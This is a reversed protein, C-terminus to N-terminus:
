NSLAQLAGKQTLVQQNPTVRQSKYLADRMQNQGSLKLFWQLIPLFQGQGLFSVM